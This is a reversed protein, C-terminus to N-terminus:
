VFILDFAHFFFDLKGGVWEGEKYREEDDSPSSREQSLGYGGLDYLIVRHKRQSLLARALPKFVESSWPTGHVFLITKGGTPGSPGFVGYRITWGEAEFSQDLHLDSSM